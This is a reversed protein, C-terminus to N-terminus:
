VPNLQWIVHQSWCYLVHFFLIHIEAYYYQTTMEMSPKSSTDTGEEEKSWHKVVKIDKTPVKMAIALADSGRRFSHYV